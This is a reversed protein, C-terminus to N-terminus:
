QGEREDSDHDDALTTAVEQAHRALALVRMRILCMSLVAASVTIVTAGEPWAATPITLGYVVAGAALFALGASEVRSREALAGITALAGGAAVAVTWAMVLWYPLVDRVAGPAIGGGSVIGGIGVVALYAVIPLYPAEALARWLRSPPRQRHPM